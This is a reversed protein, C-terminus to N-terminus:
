LSYNSKYYDTLYQDIWDDLKKLEDIKVGETRWKNIYKQSETIVKNEAPELTQLIGKQDKSILAALNLYDEGEGRDIPFLKQKLKSSWDFLPASTEGESTVIKPLYGKSNVLLPVAVSTL